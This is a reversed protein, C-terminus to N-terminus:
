RIIAQIQNETGAAINSLVWLCEKINTAPTQTVLLADVAELGGHFLFLDVNDSNSSSSLQGAVRLAPTWEEQLPSKM